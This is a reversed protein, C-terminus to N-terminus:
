MSMGAGANPTCSTYVFARSGSTAVMTRSPSTTSMGAPYWGFTPAGPWGM